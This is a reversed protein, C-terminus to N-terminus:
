ANSSITVTIYDIHGKLKSCTCGFYIYMYNHFIFTVRGKAEWINAKRKQPKSSEM